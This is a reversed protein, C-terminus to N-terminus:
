LRHLDSPRENGTRWSRMAGSALGNVSSSFHGLSWAAPLCTGTQRSQPVAARMTPMFHAVLHDREDWYMYIVVGYFASVRPM